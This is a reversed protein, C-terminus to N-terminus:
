FYFKTVWFFYNCIDMFFFINKLAEVAIFESRFARVSSRVPERRPSVRTPGAGHAARPRQQTGDARRAGAGVGPTERLQAPQKVLRLATTTERWMHTRWPDTREKCFCITQLVTLSQPTRVTWYPFWLWGLSCSPQTTTRLCPSEGGPASPLTQVCNQNRYSFSDAHVWGTFQAGGFMRRPAPRNTGLVSRRRETAQSARTWGWKSRKRENWFNSAMKTQTALDWRPNWSQLLERKKM